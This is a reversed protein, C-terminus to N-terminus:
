ARRRAARDSPRRVQNPSRSPNPEPDSNPSPFVVPNLAPTLAPTLALDKYGISRAGLEDSDARLLPNHALRQCLQSAMLAARLPSEGKSWLAIALEHQGALVAWMMLDTFLPAIHGDGNSALERRVQHPNYLDPTPTLTPTLIPTRPDLLTLRRVELHMGYGDVMKCLVKQSHQWDRGWAQLHRQSQRQQKASALRRQEDAAAPADSQVKSSRRFAPSSSRSSGVATSPRRIGKAVPVKWLEATEKIPYRNFKEQFLEDMVVHRPEATFDLLTQVM